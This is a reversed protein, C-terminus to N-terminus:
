RGRWRREREGAVANGRAADARLRLRQEAEVRQRVEGALGAVVVLDRDDAAEVLVAQLEAGVLWSPRLFWSEPVSCSCLVRM